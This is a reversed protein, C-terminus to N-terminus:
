AFRILVQQHNLNTAEVSFDMGTRNAFEIFARFEGDLFEKYNFFEDFLILPKSNSIVGELGTLITQTSSFLDCDVHIGAITPPMTQKWQPITADFWGKRISVNSKFTLKTLDTSFHGKPHSPTWKEPLGEFSDFGHFWCDPRVDAMYNISRGNWVGFELFSGSSPAEKLYHHWIHPRSLCRVKPSLVMHYLEDKTLNM